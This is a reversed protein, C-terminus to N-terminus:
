NIYIECWKGDDLCPYANNFYHIISRKCLLFIEDFTSIYINLKVEEDNESDFVSIISFTEFYKITLNVIHMKAIYIKDQLLDGNCMRGFIYFEIRDEKSEDIKIMIQYNDIPVIICVLYEDM